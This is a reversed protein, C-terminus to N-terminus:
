VEVLRLARRGILDELTLLPDDSQISYCPCPLGRNKGDDPFTGLRISILHLTERRGAADSLLQASCAHLCRCQLGVEGFALLGVGALLPKVNQVLTRQGRGLLHMVKYAPEMRIIANEQHSIGPLMFGHFRAPRERLELVRPQPSDLQILNHPM